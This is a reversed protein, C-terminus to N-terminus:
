RGPRESGTRHHPAARRGTRDRDYRVNEGLLHRKLEQYNISKIATKGRGADPYCFLAPGPPGVRLLRDSKHPDMCVTQLSLPFIAIQSRRALAPKALPENVLGM